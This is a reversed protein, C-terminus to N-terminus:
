GHLSRGAAALGAHLDALVRRLGSLEGRWSAPAHGDGARAAAAAHDSARSAFTLIAAVLIVVVVVVLFGIALGVYWGTDPSGTHNAM